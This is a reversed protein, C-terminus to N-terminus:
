LQLNSEGQSNVGNFLNCYISVLGIFVCLNQCKKFSSSNVRCRRRRCEVDGYGCDSVPCM